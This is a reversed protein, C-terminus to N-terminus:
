FPLDDNQIDVPGGNANEFPNSSQKNDKDKEKWEHNVQPYKTNKFNWPAVRNVTQKNGKYENEEQKVFVRVPKGRFMSLLQEFSEVKTGEPVGVGNLYHMFNDMKYKYEGDIDRKWEDVFIHRNAYKGNQEALEPVKTLDNRVVLTLQTEEKGNPTSRESANKIVVEYEGEPLPGFDQNNEEINSYDTTFLTM